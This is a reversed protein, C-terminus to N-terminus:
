LNNIERCHISKVPVEVSQLGSFPGAELFANPPCHAFYKDPSMGIMEPDDSSGM